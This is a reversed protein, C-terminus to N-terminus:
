ACDAERCACGHIPYFHHHTVVPLHTHPQYGRSILTALISVDMRRWDGAFLGGDMAGAVAMLDPEAAMLEASFKTCGLSNYLLADGEDWFGAGLYPWACWPEACRRTIPIVKAHIAIDHEVLLFTKGQEWLRTLLACYATDSEAVSVREAQPAHRLLAAETRPHIKTYACVVKLKGKRPM